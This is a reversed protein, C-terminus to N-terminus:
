ERRQQAKARETCWTRCVPMSLPEGNAFGRLSREREGTTHNSGMLFAIPGIRVPAPAACQRRGLQRAGGDWRRRAGRGNREGGQTEPLARDASM